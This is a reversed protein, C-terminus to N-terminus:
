SPASLRELLDRLMRHTLGWVIHGDHRWGPMPREKGRFEVRHTIDLRGAGAASLPFWFVEQAEPGPEPELPGQGEFVFPTIALQIPLGRRSAQLTPLCGLWRAHLDLDLNVEERTERLASSLLDADGEDVHGGPLSIQGSWPDAAHEIRKMLLVELQGPTGRVLM